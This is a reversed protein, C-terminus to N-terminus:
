GIQRDLTELLDAVIVPNTMPTGHDQDPLEIVQALPNLAALRVVRGSSEGEGAPERESVAGGVGQVCGHASEDVIGDVPGVGVLWEPGPAVVCAPMGGHPLSWVWAPM